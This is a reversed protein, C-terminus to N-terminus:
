CQLLAYEFTREGGKKLRNTEQGLAVFYLNPSSTPLKGQIPHFRVNAFVNTVDDAFPPQTVRQQSRAYCNQTHSELLADTLSAGM